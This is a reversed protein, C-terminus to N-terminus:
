IMLGYKKYFRLKKPFPWDLGPPRTKELERIVSKPFKRITLMESPALIRVRPETVVPNKRYWKRFEAPHARQYHRRLWAMREPFKPHLLLSKPVCRGCISCCFRELPNATFYAGAQGRWYEAAELHGSKLDGRYRKLSELAEPHVKVSVKTPNYVKAIKGMGVSRGYYFSSKIPDYSYRRSIDYQVNALKKIQDKESKTLPNGKITGWEIARKANELSGYTAIYKGSKFVLFKDESKVITYGYYKYIKEKM